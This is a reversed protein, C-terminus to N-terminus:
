MDIPKPVSKTQANYANIEEAVNNAAKVNIKLLKKRKPNGGKEDTKRDNTQNSQQVSSAQNISSAIVSASRSITKTDNAMM